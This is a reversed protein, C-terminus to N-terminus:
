YYLHFVNIFFVGSRVVQTEHGLCLHLLPKEMAVLGHRVIAARYVGHLPHLQPDLVVFRVGPLLYLLQSLHLWSGVFTQFSLSSLPKM